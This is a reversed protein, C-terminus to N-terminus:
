AYLVLIDDILLVTFAGHVHILDNFLHIISCSFRVSGATKYWNFVLNKNASLVWLITMFTMATVVVAVVTTTAMMTMMKMNNSAVQRRSSHGSALIGRVCLLQYGSLEGPCKGRIFLDLGIYASILTM